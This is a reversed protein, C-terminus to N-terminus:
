KWVGTNWREDLEMDRRAIGLPYCGWCSSTSYWRGEYRRIAPIHDIISCLSEMMHVVFRKIPM